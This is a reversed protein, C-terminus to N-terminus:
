RQIAVAASPESPNGAQDFARVVVFSPLDDDTMWFWVTGAPDPVLWLEPEGESAARAADEDDGFYVAYSIRMASATDDTASVALTVNSSEPGGYACGSCGPDYVWQADELAVTPPITDAVESVPIPDAGPTLATTGSSIRYLTAGGASFAEGRTADLSAANAPIPETASSGAAVGLVVGPTSPGIVDCADVVRHPAAVHLALGLPLVLALKHWARPPENM